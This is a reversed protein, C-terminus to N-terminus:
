DNPRPTWKISHPERTQQLALTLESHIVKHEVLLDVLTRTNAKAFLARIQKYNEEDYPRDLPIFAKIGQRFPEYDEQLMKVLTALEEYDLTLEAKPTGEVVKATGKQYRGLKLGIDERASNHGINWLVARTVVSKKDKLVRPLHDQIPM